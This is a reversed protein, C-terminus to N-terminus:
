CNYFKLTKFIDKIEQDTSEVNGVSWLDSVDSVSATEFERTSQRRKMMTKGEQYALKLKKLTLALRDADAGGGFHQRYKDMEKQERDERLVQQKTDVQTKKHLDQQTHFFIFQIFFM